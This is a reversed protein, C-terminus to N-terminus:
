FILLHTFFYIETHINLHLFKSKGNESVESVSIKILAESINLTNLSKESLPFVFEKRVNYHFM